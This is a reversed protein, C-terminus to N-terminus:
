VQQIDQDLIQMSEVAGTCGLEIARQFLERARRFSLLVGKGYFHMTGLTGAALPYDQAAAEGLWARAQEYGVAVGRGKYYMFGVQNQSLADGAEAAVKYAAM